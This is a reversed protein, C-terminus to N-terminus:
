SARDFPKSALSKIRLCTSGYDRASPTVMCSPLGFTIYSPTCPHKATMLFTTARELRQVPTCRLSTARKRSVDTREVENGRPPVRVDEGVDLAGRQFDCFLAGADFIGGVTDGILTQSLAAGFM